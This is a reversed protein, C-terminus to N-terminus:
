FILKQIGWKKFVIDIDTNQYLTRMIHITGWRGGWNLLYNYLNPPLVNFALRALVVLLMWVKICNFQPFFLPLLLPPFYKNCFTPPCFAITLQLHLLLPPTLLSAAAAAATAAATTAYVATTVANCYYYCSCYYHWRVWLLVM